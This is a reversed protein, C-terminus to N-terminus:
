ETTPPLVTRARENLDSILAEIEEQVRKGQRSAIRLEDAVRRVRVSIAALRIEGEKDGIERAAELQKRLAVLEAGGTALRDSLAEAEEFRRDLLQYTLKTDFSQELRWVIEASMSRGAAQAEEELRRMLEGPMRLKFQHYDTSM